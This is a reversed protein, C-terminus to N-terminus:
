CPFAVKCMQIGNNNTKIIEAINTLADSNSFANNQSNREHDTAKQALDQLREAWFLTLLM